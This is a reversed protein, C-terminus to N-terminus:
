LNNQMFEHVYSTVNSSPFSIKYDVVGDKLTVARESGFSCTVTKIKQKVADKGM